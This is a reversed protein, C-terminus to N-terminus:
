LLHAAELNERIITDMVVQFIVQIGTTDTATTLHPFIVKGPQLSQELFMHQIFQAAAKVDYDM